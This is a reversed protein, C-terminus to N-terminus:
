GSGDNTEMGEIGVFMDGVELGGGIVRHGELLELLQV